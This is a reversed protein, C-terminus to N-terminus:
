SGANKLIEMYHMYDAEAEEPSVMSFEIKEGPRAQALRPFRSQLIQLIRPFGGTTQHDAMLAMCHGSPLLQVSGMATASSLMEGSEIQLLPKEGTLLIGMRDSKSDILFKSKLLQEKAEDTLRNWEPGKLCLVPSSTDYLSQIPTAHSPTSVKTEALGPIILLKDEKMLQRGNMGGARCFRNLSRSGLWEEGAVGGAVALYGRYGTKMKGFSLLDGPSAIIKEWCPIDQGNLAPSFDGGTVAFTTASEFRIRPAPFHFEIVAAGEPNGLVRNSFAFAYPDMVGGPGIGLHRYGFRGADQIGAYLGADLLTM